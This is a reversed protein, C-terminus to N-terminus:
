AFTSKEKEADMEHKVVFTRLEKIKDGAFTSIDCFSYKEETGDDGKMTMEGYWIVSDGEAVTKDVKFTSIQSIWERVAQKGHTTKEGEKTWAVDDACHNLFDEAGESSADNVREIIEKNKRSM